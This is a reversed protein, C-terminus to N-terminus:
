KLSLGRFKLKCSPSRRFRFYVCYLMSYHACYTNKHNKLMPLENIHPFKQVKAALNCFISTFRTDTMMGEYLPALCKAAVISLM